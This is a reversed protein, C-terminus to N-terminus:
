KTLGTLVSYGTLKGRRNYTETRVLGVGDAIWEVASSSTTIFGAKTSIDYSIKYSSFTGADTTINEIGDIKRDSITLVLTLITTQGSKVVMQLEGDPLQDGASMNAPYLLNDATIEIGMDDYAALTNPDLYDRLDFSFVGDECVIELDGTLIENEDNDFSTTRVTVRVDNGSVTKDIIEQITISTLRDRQDYSKMERVTGIQDPFYMPCEQANLLPGIMFLFLFALLIASKM